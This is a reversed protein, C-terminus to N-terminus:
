PGEEDFVGDTLGVARDALRRRRDAMDRMILGMTHRMRALSEYTDALEMHTDLITETDDDLGFTTKLIPFRALIGQIEEWAMCYANELQKAYLEEDDIDRLFQVKKM